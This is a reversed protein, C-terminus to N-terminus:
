QPSSLVAADRGMRVTVVASSPELRLGPAAWGMRSLVHRMAETRALFKDEGQVITWPCVPQSTLEYM